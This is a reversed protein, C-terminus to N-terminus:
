LDRALFSTKLLSLFIYNCKGKSYIFKCSLRERNRKQWFDTKAWRRSNILLIEINSGFQESPVNKDKIIKIIMTFASITEENKTWTIIQSARAQYDISDISIKKVSGTRKSLEQMGVFARSGHESSNKVDFIPGVPRITSKRGTECLPLLCWRLIIIKTDARLHPFFAALIVRRRNRRRPFRSGTSSLLSLIKWKKRIQSSRVLLNFLNLFANEEISLIVIPFIM